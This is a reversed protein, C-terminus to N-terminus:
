ILLGSTVTYHCVLYAVLFTVTSWNWHISGELGAIAAQATNGWDPRLHGFFHSMKGNIKGYKEM